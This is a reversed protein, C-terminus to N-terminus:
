NASPEEIHDVVFTNVPGKQADLKLGLQDQLAEPFTSGPADAMPETVHRRDWEIIFDINGSLGTRDFVPRDLSGLASLSTAMMTISMNRGGVRVLGPQSSTMFQLTGCGAPYGGAVNADPAPAAPCPEENGYLRLQSGMKGPKALVLNYLLIQRIEYHMAFKFRDALLAQMMLRFQDKTPNGTARAQIDFGQATWATWKPLQSSMSQFDNLTLKYAFSILSVLPVNTASFLSGAPPQDDESGLSINSYPKPGSPPPGGKNAKVSAVEFSMKGGAAKEWDAQQPQALVQPAFTLSSLLPGCVAAITIATLLSNRKLLFFSTSQRTM